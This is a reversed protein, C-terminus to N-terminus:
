RARARNSPLSRTRRAPRRVLRWPGGTLAAVAAAVTVLVATVFPDYGKGGAFPWVVEGINSAAHFAVVAFMSRGTNIYVWALLVRYPVMHALHWAIWAPPHGDIILPVLHLGISATGLIAAAGLAGWREQLPDFAYGTWGLEEGIGAAFFIVFLVPLLPLYPGILGPLARGALDLWAYEVLMLVPFLLLIPGLWAKRAIRRADFPRKLLRRVADRGGERRTLVLAAAMPAFALGVHWALNVVPYAPAARDLIRNFLFGVPWLPVSLAFVLGMFAGVSGPRGAGPRGGRGSTPTTTM